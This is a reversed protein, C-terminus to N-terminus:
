LDIQLGEQAAVVQFKGQARNRCDEVIADLEDDGRNPRHHFLCMTGFDAEAALDLFDDARSHGWSPDYEEPLFFTDCVALDAGHGLDCASQRLRSLWATEDLAPSGAPTIESLDSALLQEGNLDTDCIYAFTHGGSEIRFGGAVGPHNLRRCTVRAGAIEFTDCDPHEVFDISAPLKGLPVPYFPDQQQGEFISALTHRPHRLGHVTISADDRYMFQCHPFGQIHDWHAHSLLLDVHNVSRELLSRGLGRIGTGADIVIVGSETEIEVCPTNGGYRNVNPSSVPFSGRVGWFRIKM